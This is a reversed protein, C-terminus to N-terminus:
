THDRTMGGYIAEEYRKIREAERYQSYLPNGITDCRLAKVVQDMKSFAELMEVEMKRAEELAESLQTAAYIIKERDSHSMGNGTNGASLILSDAKRGLDRIGTWLNHYNYCLTGLERGIGEFDHQMTRM